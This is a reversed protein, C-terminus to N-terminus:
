KNRQFYIKFLKNCIFDNNKWNQDFLKLFDEVSNGMVCNLLFLICYQGCCTSTFDQIQRTNYSWIVTNRRIFKLINEPPKKGFSDFFHGYGFKNIYVAMWHSGRMYDPDKNVVLMAPKSIYMPLANYACVLVHHEKVNSM